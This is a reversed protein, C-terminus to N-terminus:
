ERVEPLIKVGWWSAYDDPWTRFQYWSYYPSQQSQYAGLGPYRGNQNFYVSDSGTHSFVGDLVVRIKCKAAAECLASFDEESGLLPDIRCYDATDYRHNSQAEFVPNLYLCTVGLAALAPLKELIGNLDGGFFDNNLVKGDSTPRWEPEGGWDERLIRGKPVTARCSGSKCFRDPFIQYIVGGKLWEPTTFAPDTVTLQWDEGEFAVQGLGNGAHTVRARGWDTDYEFHYWYLGKEPAAYEARWWESYSGQMGDWEMPHYEWDGRDDRHIVFWAAVCHIGRPLMLRYRVSEGAPVAGFKSKYRVDRSNHPCDPM